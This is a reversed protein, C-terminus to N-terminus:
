TFVHKERGFINASITRLPAYHIAAANEILTKKM